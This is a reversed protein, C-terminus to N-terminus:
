SLYGLLKTLLRQTAVAGTVLMGLRGSLGGIETTMMLCLESSPIRNRERGLFIFSKAGLVRKM